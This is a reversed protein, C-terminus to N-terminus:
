IGLRRQNTVNHGDWLEKYGPKEDTPEWLRAFIRISSNRVAWEVKGDHEWSRRPVGLPESKLLMLMGGRFTAATIKWVRVSGTAKNTAEFFFVKKPQVIYPQTM